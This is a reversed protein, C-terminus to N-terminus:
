SIAYVSMSDIFELVTEPFPDDALGERKQIQVAFSEGSLLAGSSAFTPGGGLCTRDLLEDVDGSRTAGSSSEVVLRPKQNADVPALPTRSISALAKRHKEVIPRFRDRLVEIIDQQDNARIIEPEVSECSDLGPPHDPSPLPKTTTKKKKKRSKQLAGTSPMAEPPSSGDPPSVLNDIKVGSYADEIQTQDTAGHEALGSENVTPRHYLVVDQTGSSAMAFSHQTNDYYRLLTAPSKTLVKNLADLTLSLMVFPSSLSRM